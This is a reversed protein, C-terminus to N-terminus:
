QRVKLFNNFLGKRAFHPPWSSLPLWPLSNVPAVCLDNRLSPATAIVCTSTLMSRIQNLQRKCLSLTLYKSFFYCPFLLGPRHNFSSQSFSLPFNRGLFLFLHSSSGRTATGSSTQLSATSYMQLAAPIQCLRFFVGSETYHISLHDFAAASTRPMAWRM